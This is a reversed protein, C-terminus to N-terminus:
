IVSEEFNNEKIMKREMKYSIEKKFAIKIAM